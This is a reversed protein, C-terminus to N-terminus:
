VNVVLAKVTITGSALRTANTKVTLKLYGGTAYTKGVGNGTVACNGANVTAKNANITTHVSWNSANAGDGLLLTGSANTKSVSWFVKTVHKKTFDLLRVTDGSALSRVGLDLTNELLYTGPQAIYAPVGKLFETNYDAM